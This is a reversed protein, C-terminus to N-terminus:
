RFGIVGNDIVKVGREVAVARFRAQGPEDNWFEVRLTDGPYVPQSFRMGLRNMRGSDYDCLVALAAYCVHGFTGLGHLIPRPFGKSRAVEPDVHLPNLDGSLRYILGARPSVPVDRIIDPAGVREIPPLSAPRPDHTGSIESFGGSCRVLEIRRLRAIMRGAEDRIDREIEALAGRNRGRDHLATVRNRATVKAATPIPAFLELIQEAHLNSEYDVGTEPHRWWQGPSGLTTALSPVVKLHSEYVYALERPDCPDRGLGVGLAYLITDRTEYDHVIDGFDWTRVKSYNLM